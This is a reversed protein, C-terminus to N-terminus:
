KELENLLKNLLNIENDRCLLLRNIIGNLHKVVCNKTINIKIIINRIILIDDKIKSYDHVFVEDKIYGKRLMYKMREIMINKHDILSSIARLDIFLKNEFTYQFYNILSFYCDVGFSYFHNMRYGMGYNDLLLYEKIDNIVKAKNFIYRSFKENWNPLTYYKLLTLGETGLDLDAQNVVNKIALEINAFSIEEFSYKGKYNDACFFKKEGLDYGYIFQVHYGDYQYLGIYDTKIPFWIYEDNDIRDILFNCIDNWTDLLLYLPIKYFQLWPNTRLEFYRYDGYLSHFFDFKAIVGPGGSLDKASFIQIYNCFIWDECEKYAQLISLLTAQHPFATAMPYEVKLKKIMM